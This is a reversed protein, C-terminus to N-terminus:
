RARVEALRARPVALVAAELGPPPTADERGSTVLVPCFLTHTHAHDPMPLTM